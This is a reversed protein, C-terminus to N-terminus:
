GNTIEARTTAVRDIDECVASFQRMVDLNSYRRVQYGQSELYETRRRDYELENPECHQSGDLEVILRAKYCYFDVIYSGITYQRKFQIPYKRLFQYWLKNEEKTMNKRLSRSRSLLENDEM